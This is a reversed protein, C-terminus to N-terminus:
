RYLAESAVLRAAALEMDELIELKGQTGGTHRRAIELAKANNNEGVKFLIVLFIIVFPILFLICAGYVDFSM